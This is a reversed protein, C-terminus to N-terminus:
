EMDLNVSFIFAFSQANKPSSALEDYMLFFQNLHQQSHDIDPQKLLM